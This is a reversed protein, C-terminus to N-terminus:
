MDNFVYMGKILLEACDYGQEEFNNQTGKLNVTSLESFSCLDVGSFDAFESNLIAIFRENGTLNSLVNNVTEESAGDLFVVVDDLQSIGDANERNNQPGDMQQEKIVRRVIRTLDNETLKVIRKM